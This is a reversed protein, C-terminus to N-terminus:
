QLTQTLYVEVTGKRGDPCELLIHPEDWQLKRTIRVKKITLGADRADFPALENPVSRIISKLKNIPCNVDDKCDGCRNIDAKVTAVQGVRWTETVM